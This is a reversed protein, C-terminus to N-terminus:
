VHDGYDDHALAPVAPATFSLVGYPRETLTASRHDLCGVLQSIMFAAVFLNIRRKLALM